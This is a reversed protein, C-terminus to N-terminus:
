PIIKQKSIFTGNDYKVKYATGNPLELRGEGHKVSSSGDSVYNGIYVKGDNSTFTGEGDRFGKNLSGKMNIETPSFIFGMAM